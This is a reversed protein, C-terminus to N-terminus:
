PTFIDVTFQQSFTGGMILPIQRMFCLAQVAADFYDGVDIMNFIVTAEKALEVIKPWNQLACMNYAEVKMNKNIFHDKLLKEQAVIVKSKGLDGHDFLM